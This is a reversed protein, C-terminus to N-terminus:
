GEEEGEGEGQPWESLADGSSNRSSRRSSKRSNRTHSSNRTSHRRRAGNTGTSTGHRALMGSDFNSLRGGAGVGVGAGAGVGVGGVGESPLPSSGPTSAGHTHAPNHTSPTPTSPGTWFPRHNVHVQNSGSSGNTGTTAGLDPTYLDVDIEDFDVLQPLAEAVQRYEDDPRLELAYDFDDENFLLSQRGKKGKDGHLISLRDMTFRSM